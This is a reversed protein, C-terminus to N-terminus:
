VKQAIAFRLKGDLDRAWQVNSLGAKIMLQMICANQDHHHEILIWGGTILIRPAEKVLIRISKLGDHGGDLSLRPENNLINTELSNVVKSPIYPPNALILNFQGWWPHLPLFWDGQTLVVKKNFALQKINRESQYFAENTYDTAHGLWSPLARSLAVAIAGSGTGLDAWRYTPLEGGVFLKHRSHSVCHLALDVLLETEQRPILVGSDSKLYLDRWPCIGVLYQLPIKKLCHCQWIKSLDKLPRSLSFVKLQSLLVQNWNIDCLINLLWELDVLMGGERLRAQRWAFLRQSNTYEQKLNLIMFTLRIDISLCVSSQKM